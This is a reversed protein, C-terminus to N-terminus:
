QKVPLVIGCAQCYAAERSGVLQVAKMGAKCRPCESSDHAAEVERKLSAYVVRPAQRPVPKKIQDSMTLIADIAKSTSASAVESNFGAMRLRHHLEVAESPSFGLGYTTNAKQILMKLDM